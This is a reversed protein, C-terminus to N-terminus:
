RNFRSSICVTVNEKTVFNETNGTSQEAYNQKTKQKHKTLKM